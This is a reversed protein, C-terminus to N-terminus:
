FNFFLTTESGIGKLEIGKNFVFRFLDEVVEEHIGDVFDIGIFNNVSAVIRQGDYLDMSVYDEINNGLYVLKIQKIKNYEINKQQKFFDLMVQRKREHEEKDKISKEESFEKALELLDSQIKQFSNFMM